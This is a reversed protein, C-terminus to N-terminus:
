KTYIYLANNIQSVSVLVDFSQGFFFDLSLAICLFKSVVTEISLVTLVSGFGLSSLVRCCQGFSFFFFYACIRVFADPQHLPTECSWIRSMYRDMMGITV